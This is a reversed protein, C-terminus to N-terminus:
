RAHGQLVGDIEPVLFDILASDMPLEIAEMRHHQCAHLVRAAIVQDEQTTRVGNIYSQYKQAAHIAQQKSVVITGFRSM